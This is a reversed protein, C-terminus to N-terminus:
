VPLSNHVAEYSIEDYIQVTTKPNLSYKKQAFITVVQSDNEIITPQLRDEIFKILNSVDPKCIHYISGELMQNLRAKSTSKPIPMEFLIHLLVPGTLANKGIWQSQIQWNYYSIEKM